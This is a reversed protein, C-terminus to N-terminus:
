PNMEIQNEFGDVTRLSKSRRSEAAEPPKQAEKGEEISHIQVQGTVGDGACCLVTGMLLLSSGYGDV